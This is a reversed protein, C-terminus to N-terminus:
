IIQMASLGLWLALVLMLGGTIRRWLRLRTWEFLEPAAWASGLMIAGGLAGGAAAPIADATAVAIAMILFRAADTIQHALLVIGAAALSRTPEALKRGPSMLLSEAGALGLALAAFFMRANASLMPSIATAAWAAVAATVVCLGVALLLLSPRAGLSRALSAVTMADRAGIGALLTAIFAFLFATM